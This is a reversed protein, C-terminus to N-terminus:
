MYNLVSLGQAKSMCYAAAQYATTLSNYDSILSVTDADVLEVLTETLRADRATNTDVLTEMKASYTGVYSLNDATLDICGGLDGLDATIGPVDNALLHDKLTQLTAFIDVGAGDSFVRAGSIGGEMTASSSVFVQNVNASGNFVVNGTAGDVTYPVTTSQTGGFIYTDTVKTNGLAILQDIIGDIQEAATLRSEEDATDSAMQITLQKAESLLDSVNNIASEYYAATTQLSNINKKFQANKDLQADIQLSKAYSIPDDSPAMIRKQSAIMQTTRDAKEKLNAFIKKYLDFRYSDTVRM